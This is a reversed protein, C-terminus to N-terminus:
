RIHVFHDLKTAALIGFRVSMAFRSNGGKRNWRRQLMVLKALMVSSLSFVKSFSLM